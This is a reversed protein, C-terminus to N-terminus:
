KVIFQSGGVVKEEDELRVFYTGKSLMNVEIPPVNNTGYSARYSM